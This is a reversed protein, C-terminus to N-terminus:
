TCCHRSAHFAHWAERVILPVLSEAQVYNSKSKFRWLAIAASFLEVASDGALALFRSVEPV